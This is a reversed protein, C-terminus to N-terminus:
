GGVSYLGQEWDWREAIFTHLSMGVSAIVTFSPAAALSLVASVGVTVVTDAINDRGDM